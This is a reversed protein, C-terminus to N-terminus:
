IERIRYVGKFSVQRRETATSIAIISCIGFQLPLLQIASWEASLILYMESDNFWESDGQPIARNEKNVFTAVSMVTM